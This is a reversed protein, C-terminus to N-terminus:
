SCAIVDEWTIDGAIIAEAQKKTVTPWGFNGACTAGYGQVLSRADKLTRGCTICAGYAAGFERAEAWTLRDSCRLWAMAKANYAFDVTTDGDEDTIVIVKEAYLRKSSRAERVRYISTTDTVYKYLGPETVKDAEQAAQEATSLCEGDRHYTVWRGDLKVITGKEAPVQGHCTRCVGDYKNTRTAKVAPIALMAEIETSAMAATLTGTAALLAAQAVRPLLPDREAILRTLLTTQAATAYKVRGHKAVIASVDPAVFGATAAAITTAITDMTSVPTTDIEADVEDVADRAAAFAKAEAVLDGEPDPVTPSKYKAVYESHTLAEVTVTVWETGNWLRTFGPEGHIVTGEIMPAPELTVHHLTFPVTGADNASAHCDCDDMFPPISGTGGCTTCDPDPTQNM